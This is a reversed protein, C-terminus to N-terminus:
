REFVMLVSSGAHRYPPLLYLMRKLWRVLLRHGLMRDDVECHVLRLGLRKMQQIVEYSWVIYVADSDYVFPRSLADPDEVILFPLEGFLWGRLHGLFRQWTYSRRWGRRQSKSQLANPYWFPLDWTPGLLVIRGGSRVVRSMERLMQVPRVAHELAFTSIVADFSADAFPLAEADACALCLGSQQVRKLGGQSIDCGFYSGRPKLWQANAASGCAVDLIRSGERIFSAARGRSPTNASIEDTVLEWYIPQTDWFHILRQKLRSRALGEAEVTGLSSVGVDRSFRPDCM